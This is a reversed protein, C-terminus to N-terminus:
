LAYPDADLRKPPTVASRVLPAGDDDLPEILPTVSRRSWAAVAVQLVVAVATAVQAVVTSDLTLWGLGVLAYLVVTVVHGIAVPERTNM